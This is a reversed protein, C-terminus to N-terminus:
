GSKFNASSEFLCWEQIIMLESIDCVVVGGGGGEHYLEPHMVFFGPKGLKYWLM